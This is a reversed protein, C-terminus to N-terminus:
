LKIRRREMAREWKKEADAGFILEADAPISFWGNAKIEAELQGPAWGAYGLALLTRRPGKGLSLARLLEPDTTVAIGDKIKTTSDLVYDDSHLIFGKGPEVPGGYHLTIEGGAGETEVGLSKLVDAIPGKAVPRNVVLGVAGHEDHKIMYLVTEAFRPDPMEPTAVLLQGTLFREEEAACLSLDLAAMSVLALGVSVSFWKFLRGLM